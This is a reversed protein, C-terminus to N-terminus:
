EENEQNYYQKTTITQSNLDLAENLYELRDTSQLGSVMTFIRRTSSTYFNPSRPTLEFPMRMVQHPESNCFEDGITKM